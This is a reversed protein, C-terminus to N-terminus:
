RQHSRRERAPLHARYGREIHSPDCQGGRQEGGGDHSIVAGFTMGALVDTSSAQRFNITSTGPPRGNASATGAATALLAAALAIRRM